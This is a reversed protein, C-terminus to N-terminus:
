HPSRTIRTKPFLKKGYAEECLWFSKWLSGSRYYNQAICSASCLDKMACSGCIGELRVPIGNRLERIVHNDRWIKELSDSSANGFVLEPIHSGIGCLAYSGDALIGLVSLIGCTACGDGDKGFMQSLKRFVPPIDFYLNIKTKKSLTDSVWHELRLIEEVDLAGGQSTLSEGRGTPQVTNFKISGAGLNEGLEVLEELQSKNHKMVTFIIQPTLGAKSLRKIGATADAFCGDIGRVWEHTKANAGDLSVSIMVKKKFSVMIGVLEQTCLVGNTEISLSLKEKKIIDLIERIKPHLFPEGGTLKVSALGLPKAQDIISRFMDVALMSSTDVNTKQQLLPSLWCHRCALNCGATLYFYLRKLPWEEKKDNL